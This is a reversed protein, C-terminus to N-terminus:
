WYSLASRLVTIAAHRHINSTWTKLTKFDKLRETQASYHLSCLSRKVVEMYFVNVKLLWFLSAPHTPKDVWIFCLAPLRVRFIDSPFIYSGVLVRVFSHFFKLVADALHIANSATKGRKKKKKKWGGRRTWPHLDASVINFERREGIARGEM